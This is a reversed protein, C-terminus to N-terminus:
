RVLLVRRTKAMSDSQIRIFYYGSPVPQGNRDRGNWVLELERPTATTSIWGRVLRGRLDFILLQYTIDERAIIRLHVSDYAPNPWPPDLILGPLVVSVEVDSLTNIVEVGRLYGVQYDNVRIELDYIGEPVDDICFWGTQDTDGHLGTYTGADTRIFIGANAVPEATLEDRVTGCISGALVPDPLVLAVLLLLGLAWPCPSARWKKFISGRKSISASM